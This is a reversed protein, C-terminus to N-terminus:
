RWFISYTKLRHGSPEFKLTVYFTRALESLEGAVPQFGTGSEPWWGNASM